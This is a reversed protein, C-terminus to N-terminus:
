KEVAIKATNKKKLRGLFHKVFAFNIDVADRTASPHKAIYKFILRMGIQVVKFICSKLTRCFYTFTVYTVMLKGVTSTFPNYKCMLFSFIPKLDTILHMHFDLTMDAEGPNGLPLAGVEVLERRLCCGM